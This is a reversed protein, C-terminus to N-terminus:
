SIMITIGVSYTDVGGNGREFNSFPLIFVQTLARAFSSVNNGVFINGRKDGRAVNTASAFKTDLVCFINRM